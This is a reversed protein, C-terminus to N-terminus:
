QGPLTVFTTAFTFYIFIGTVDVFTAVFPSSAVGPDIGLRKFVIPLMAGILTGWLCIMAVSAGIVMGLTVRDIAEFRLECNSPFHYVGHASCRPEQQPPLTITLPRRIPHELILAAGVPVQIADDTRQLRQGQALRLEFAPLDKKIDSRTDERTMAGRGFGIVGLSVGLAAGMLLEHRLVKWWKAVTIQGLAMARTILTAAQSGSNGGTSICLPVFLSLVVLQAIAEEFHELMTFTLLEAAFLCSLWFVRKRWVTLFSMNLYDGDLPGVGGMRHVDETAEQVVVDMVDDHTVFGVMRNQEDVVPIALLDYRALEKAVHERDDTTRVSVVRTEMLDKVLAHRPAMILDRLSLVGLLRHQEDLVFVYYITEREPAQLRLRDLAEDATINPPLWAYDTTMLGGATDPDQRVLMAIDRRDAEDVLRLLSEAVRPSLRRLLNVRDDHSMKEILHAMREKGAGEVLKIQWETPFYEFIAAQQPISTHELFKWVQEVELDGSLTEAVTAPHLHELFAKMGEVDNEQLLLRVEPGFLSHPM